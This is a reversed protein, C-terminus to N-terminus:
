ILPSRRHKTKQEFAYAYGMIKEDDLDGAFFSLGVPLGHVFGSPVTIHPYGAIAAPPSCCVSRNDGNVLDIAWAPGVTPAVLVDLNDKALASDIGDRGAHLVYDREVRRIAESVAEEAGLSEVRKRAFYEILGYAVILM